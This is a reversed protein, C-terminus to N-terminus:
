CRRFVGVCPPPCRRFLSRHCFGVLVPPLSLVWRASVLLEVSGVSSFSEDAGFRPMPDEPTSSTDDRRRQRRAVYERQRSTSAGGPAVPGPPGAGATRGFWVAQASMANIQADWMEKLSAATSEASSFLSPLDSDAPMSSSTPPRRGLAKNIDAISRRARKAFGELTNKASLLNQRASSPMGPQTTPMVMQSVVTVKELRLEFSKVQARARGVLDLNGM